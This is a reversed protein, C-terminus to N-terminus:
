KRTPGTVFSASRALRPDGVKAAHILATDGDADWENVKAGNALLLRVIDINDGIAAAMLATAGTRTIRITRPSTKLDVMAQAALLEEVVELHGAWSAQMLATMGSVDVMNVDAGREILAHVFERNGLLAAHMLPSMGDGDTANVDAGLKILTSIQSTQGNKAAYILWSNLLTQRQERGLNQLSSIRRFRLSPRLRCRMAAPLKAARM